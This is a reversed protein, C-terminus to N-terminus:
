GEFGHAGDGYLWVESSAVEGAAAEMLEFGSDLAGEVFGGPFFVEDDNFASAM